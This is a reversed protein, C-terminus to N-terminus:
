QKPVNPFHFVKLTKALANVPLHVAINVIIKACAKRWYHRMVIAQM